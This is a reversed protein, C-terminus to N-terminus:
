SVAKIINITGLTIGVAAAITGLGLTILQGIDASTRANWQWYYGSSITPWANALASNTQNDGWDFDRSGAEFTGHLRGQKSFTFATRQGAGDPSGMVIYVFSVDYSPAGSDHFHGTFNIAGNPYLELHAFGGVPVGNDFTISGTDLILNGLQPPPPAPPPPAPQPPEAAPQIIQNLQALGHILRQTGESTPFVVHSSASKMQTIGSIHALEMLNRAM